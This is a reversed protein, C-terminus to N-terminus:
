SNKESHEVMTMVDKNAKDIIQENLSVYIKKMTMLNGFVDEICNHFKRKKEELLNLGPTGVLDESSQSNDATNGDSKARTRLVDPEYLDNECTRCTREDGSVNRKGCVECQENRDDNGGPRSSSLHDQKDITGGLSEVNRKLLKEMGDVHIINAEIIRQVELKGDPTNLYEHMVVRINHHFYGVHIEEQEQRM